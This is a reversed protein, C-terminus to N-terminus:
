LVTPVISEEIMFKIDEIKTLMLFFHSQGMEPFLIYKKLDNISRVIIKINTQNKDVFHALFKFASKYM